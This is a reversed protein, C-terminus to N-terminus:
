DNDLMVGLVDMTVFYNGTMDQVGVAVTIADLDMWATDGNKADKAYDDVAAAIEQSGQVASAIAFIAGAAGAARGVAKLANGTARLSSRPLGGMISPAKRWLSANSTKLVQFAERDALIGQLSRKAANLNFESEHGKLPELTLNGDSDTGFSYSVNNGDDHVHAGREPDADIRINDGVWTSVDGLTDIATIPNNMAFAFLNYGGSEGSLDRNIWRGHIPNYYRHGYYVLGSEEEWFKTSYRFPMQHALLGTLRILEGNPNYEYRAALSKDAANILATINGNGDYATFCNTGAINAALLGGIGGAKDLTGSLDQGWAFSQIVSYQSDIIAVLNWGDYVFRNTFQPVFISGNWSSTIKQVKRDMFDYAFQLKLINTAAINAIGNTMWMSILRNEGDWQYNWVGDFSLNGDADYVLTQNNAPFVLGGKNTFTGSINTVNQWIPQNTNAVSIQRHFYEGKRDATGNNVMVSNTALAAGIIDKLGPTVISTYQNLNNATYNVIQLNNGSTDGGFESTTRNGINDYAYGYQQGSVYTNDYWHRKASTLENRDNYGYEWASNDELKAETRRNVADYQYAHSTVPQGDVSNVISRLRFGYDWSRTTTLVATLNSYCTTTQLLDSNPVYSYAASYIGTGVTALRGYSDYGYDDELPLSLGQVSISDRGYYPNFHNSVAVGALLGGINTTCVLRSAFDYTLENTGSGDIIERPQGARNYDNFYVDPTGDNYCQATLDQFGNYYNTVTVPVGGVARSWSRTLLWGTNPDYTYTTANDQANIKKLLAGSAEDYQWYTNDGTGPSSPWTSSNWGSGGRYTILNTLDGYESYRYEAPYPVDGWTRYLQGQTTYAYYTKKGNADTQCKLKGANAEDTGYYAYSTTNGAPDTMSTMWGTSPDYTMYTSFGLSSEIQNTRGLADYFYLTPSAVSLTSSSIPLGNQYINTASLSSTNPESTVTTIKNNARDLTTTTITENTDADYDISCAIENGTFGNLQELHISQIVMDSDELEWDPIDANYTVNTTAQYWNGDINIVNRIAATIRDYDGSTWDNKDNLTEFGGVDYGYSTGPYVGDYGGYNYQEKFLRNSFYWRTLSATNTTGSGTPWMQWADSNGCADTAQTKWRASNAHGLCTTQERIGGDGDEIGSVISMSTTDHEYFKAVTGNGQVSLPMRDLSQQQIVQIGGPSTNITTLNDTSYSTQTAIGSQDVHNTLRGASDFAWSQTTSLDSAAVTQSTTQGNADYTYTVTQDPQSGYGKVTVAQVRQLSDYTYSKQQGNEDTESLLLEGDYGNIGRYDATYLTRSQGTVPDIRVVNTARGLSDVYYRIKNLLAWQPDYSIWDGDTSGASTYIYEEAQVLNGGHCVRTNKHTAGPYIDMCYYIFQNLLLHDNVAQYQDPIPTYGPISDPWGGDYGGIGRIPEDIETELHDPYNTAMGDLTYLHNNTDIIFENASDDFVGHDYYFVAYNLTSVTYDRHGSMGAPASDAYSCVDNDNFNITDLEHSGYDVPRSSSWSEVTQEGNNMTASQDITTPTGQDYCRINQQSTLIGDDGLFLSSGGTFDIDEVASNDVTALDPSTAGGNAGDFYPHLVECPVFADFYYDDFVGYERKEWYRDPYIIKNIQGYGIGYVDGPDTGSANTYYEYTTVLDAPSNPIRTEALEAGWPYFHYTEQCQYAPTDSGAYKITDTEVRDTAPSGVFSVQRTEVRTESGTGQTLTWTIDGGSVAKVLSQTSLIGHRNEIIWLNTTTNPDPNQITWTVFPDGTINTYLGIENQNTGVQDPLYFNLVTQNTNPTLVDVFTQCSKVQRILDDYNTYIEGASNTALSSINTTVLIVSAYLNTPVFPNDPTGLPMEVYLNTMSGNYYIADPTYSNWSLGAEHLALQGAALGDFTRGLSVSWEISIRNTDQNCGPGIALWNGQGPAKTADDCGDGLSFHGFKDKLIEITSNNTSAYGTGPNMLSLVGDSSSDHNLLVTYNPAPQNKKIKLEPPPQVGFTIQATGSNDPSSGPWPFNIAYALLLRNVYCIQSETPNTAMIGPIPDYNTYNAFLANTYFNMTTIIRNMELVLNTQSELYDPDLGSDDNTFIAQATATFNSWIFADVAPVYIGNTLTYIYNNAGNFNDWKFLPSGNPGSNPCMISIPYERRLVANVIVPPYNTPIYNGFEDMGAGYFVVHQGGINIELYNTADAYLNTVTITLKQDLPNEIWKAVSDVTTHTPPVGVCRTSLDLDSSSQATARDMSIFIMVALILRKLIKM